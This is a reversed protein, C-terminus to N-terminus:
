ADDVRRRELGLHGVRERDIIRGARKAPAAIAAAQDESALIGVKGYVCKRWDRGRPAPTGRNDVSSWRRLGAPRADPALPVTRGGWRDVCPRAPRSATSTSCCPISRRRTSTRRSSAGATSCARRRRHRRPLVRRRDGAARRRKARLKANGALTRVVKHDPLSSWNSRDAAQRVLLVHPGGMAGDPSVHYDHRGPQDAPTVREAPGRRRAARPLPLAADPEDPSALFYVLRGSEDVGVVDIVDFEGRHRPAAAGGDRRVLYSTGGATASASGPSPAGTTSGSCTTSPRGGLGRRARHLGHAGQRDRRRRADRRAANQLRNLQQIVLEDVNRGMGHAPHLENRPDGPVEIWERRAAPPRSWASAARGLEAPGGQPLSRKSGPISRRRHHRDAHVDQVGSRTSRGTPSRSATPAGASATASRSSRRTCGTSRATSSRTRATAQHARTIAGTPSTRSTCTTRASTARRADGDPSFKAFM